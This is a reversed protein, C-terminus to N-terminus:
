DEWSSKLRRQRDGRLWCAKRREVGRGPVRVVKCMQRRGADDNRVRDTKCIWRRGGARGQLNLAEIDMAFGGRIQVKKAYGGGRMTREGAYAQKRARAGCRRMLGTV